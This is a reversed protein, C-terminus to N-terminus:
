DSPSGSKGRKGLNGSITSLGAGFRWTSGPASSQRQGFTKAFPLSVSIASTSKLLAKSLTGMVPLQVRAEHGNDLDPSTQALSLYM